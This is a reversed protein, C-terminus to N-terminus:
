NCSFTQLKERRGINVSQEETSWSIRKKDREGECVLTFFTQKLRLSIKHRSKFIGDRGRGGERTRELTEHWEFVKM